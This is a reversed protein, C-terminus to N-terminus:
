QVAVYELNYNVNVLPIVCCKIWEENVVKHPSTVTFMCHIHHAFTCIQIMLEHSEGDNTERPTNRKWLTQRYVCNQWFTQVSNCMTIHQMINRYELWESSDNYSGQVFDFLLKTHMYLVFWLMQHIHSRTGGNKHPGIQFNSRSLLSMNLFHSCKASDRSIHLTTQPILSTKIASTLILNQNLNHWHRNECTHQVLLWRGRLAFRRTFLM